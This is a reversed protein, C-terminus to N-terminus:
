EINEHLFSSTSQIHDFFPAIILTFEPILLSGTWAENKSSDTFADLFFLVASVILAGRLAGFVIGLLRDTGSLGTKTVLLASFYNIISGVILTSVFIALIATGNSFLPDEIYTFYAALKEYYQTAIFFAGFWILLSLAETVFGRILSILSSLVIVGIILIDIWNM